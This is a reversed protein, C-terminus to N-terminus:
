ETIRDLPVATQMPGETAPMKFAPRSPTASSSFDLRLTCYGLREIREHTQQQPENSLEAVIL